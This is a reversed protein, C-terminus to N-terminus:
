HAAGELRLVPAQRDPGPRPFGVAVMYGAVTTPNGPLPSLGLREEVAPWSSAPSVVLNIGRRSLPTVRQLLDECRRGVAASLAIEDGSGVVWVPGNLDPRAELTNITATTFRAASKTVDNWQRQWVVSVGIGVMLLIVGLALATRRLRGRLKGLGCGALLVAGVWGPFLFREWLGYPDPPFARHLTWGLALAPITYAAAARALPARLWRLAAIFAILLLAVGIAGGPTRALLQAPPKVGGSGHLTAQRWALLAITGIGAAALAKRALRVGGPRRTSALVLVPILWLLGDEKVMGASLALVVALLPRRVALTALLGLAVALVAYVNSLWAAAVVTAPATATFLGGLAAAAEDCTWRLLLSAVAASAAAAVLATVVHFGIPDMWDARGILLLLVEGLPRFYVNLLGHSFVWGFSVKHAFFLHVHDDWFLPAGFSPILLLFAAGASALAPWWAQRGKPDLSSSTMGDPTNAHTAM